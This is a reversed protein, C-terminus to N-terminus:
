GAYEGAETLRLQGLGVLTELLPRIRAPGAGRFRAALAEATLPVAAQQVLARVTLAQAAMDTPWPLLLRVGPGEGLPSPLSAPLALTAQTPVTEPAQYAPRLWRVQGAAEEQQRAANLAVLRILLDAEALDAPWGYAAAVATDLQQHLHLVVAALGHTHTTQEKPTLPQGARLKEVVNYLDTLTLTPHAAQQRKRHVDLQEALRRIDARQAETAAPFPFPDFCRTGNYRSDNGVGLWGGSAMAYAVHISSSLVGLHYADESAIVFLTNDPTTGGDLFMFVRHKSTQTTVIFRPLGALAPRLQRRPEGFTWWKTRYSARNNLDREPKVRELIWQYVAPYRDLVEDPTLGFLDIVWLGRSKQM